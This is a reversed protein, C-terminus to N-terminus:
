SEIFHLCVKLLMSKIPDLCTNLKDDDCEPAEGEGEGNNGNADKDEKDKLAYAAENFAQTDKKKQINFPKLIAKAILNVTHVFCWTQNTPGCFEDLTDGLYM